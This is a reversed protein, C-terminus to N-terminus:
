WITQGSQAIMLQSGYKLNATEAAARVRLGVQQQSLNTDVFWGSTLETAHDKALHPSTRFLFVADKAVFQRSRSKLASFKPLFQPDREALKRLLTCYADKMNAARFETGDLTITWEGRRRSDRAPTIQAVVKQRAPSAPTLLMRRLIDNESEAFSNRRSEIVRSVEVDISIQKTRPM